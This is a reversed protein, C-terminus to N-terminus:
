RLTTLRVTSTLVVPPQVALAQLSGSACECATDVSLEDHALEM